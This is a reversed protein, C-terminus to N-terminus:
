EAEKKTRASSGLFSTLGFLLREVEGLEEEACIIQKQLDSRQKRLRNAYESDNFNASV